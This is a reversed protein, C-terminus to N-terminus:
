ELDLDSHCPNSIWRLIYSLTLTKTNFSMTLHNWGFLNFSKNDHIQFKSTEQEVEGM